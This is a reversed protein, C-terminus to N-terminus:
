AFPLNRAIQPPYPTIPDPAVLHFIAKLNHDRHRHIQPCRLRTTWLDVPLVGGAVDPSPVIAGTPGGLEGTGLWRMVVSAHAVVWGFCRLALLFTTAVLLVIGHHESWWAIRWSRLRM